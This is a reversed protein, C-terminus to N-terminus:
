DKPWNRPSSPVMSRCTSDVTATIDRTAYFRKDGTCALQNGLLRWVVIDQIIERFRNDDPLYGSVRSRKWNTSRVRRYTLVRGLDDAGVAAPRVM